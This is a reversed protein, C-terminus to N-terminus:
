QQKDEPIVLILKQVFRTFCSEVNKFCAPKNQWAICVFYVPVASLMLVLGIVADIPKGILPVMVLAVCGLFFIIPFIWSVKIPRTLNPMKFRLWMLALIVTGIALWYVISMYNMLDFLNSSLFLFMLSLIGTLIVAPMPTLRDENIMTLVEPMHGCRGGVFFLRSSTLVVGNASGITSFAVFVPMIWSMPGYLRDGFTVAVANSDLMEDTNLETYFAVNTMTYIFTCLAMSIAIALPLNRKPNQLEEIIFNLYNWGQYAFLGAYFALAIDAPDTSTGEFMNEFNHTKGLFLQVVGTLVVLILALVKAVTFIDQVKTALRVSYCNVFTLIVILAAALLESSYMPIHCTKFFPSLMYASFTLAVITMTCPRVVIAEIWLRMFGLFPGFADTIYAYDGGSRKIMTGLEAYCYAGVASFLGCLVWVVLSLGISGAKEHIGKPSVFIGSGIICGVIINIGNFLTLNRQLGVKGGEEGDGNQAKDSTITTDNGNEVTGSKNADNDIIPQKM